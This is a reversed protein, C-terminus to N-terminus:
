AAGDALKRRLRPTLLAILAFGVAGVASMTFFAAPPTLTYLPGAVLTALMLASGAATGALSQATAAWRDPILGSTLAVMGLHTAGFTAAHTMQLLAAAVFTDAFPFIAWRIAAFAAGALILGLPGFVGGVARAVFFLAIEAIVGLAWLLGIINESFGLERWYISGFSYFAGHSAQVLGIGCLALLFVPARLNQSPADPARASQRESGMPPLTLAAPVLSALTLALLWPIIELTTAGLLPGGILAALLFAASGWLRMRGYHAYGARDVDIAYADSLPILPSWAIATITILLVVAEFSRVVGIAAFGLAAATALQAIAQRRRGIRDVISTVLPNAAIRMLLPLATVIGIEVPTLGREALMLPFFPLYLGMGFFFAAFVLGTRVGLGRPTLAGMTPTKQPRRM